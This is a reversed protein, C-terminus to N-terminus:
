RRRKRGLRVIRVLTFVVVLVAAIGLSVQGWVPLEVGVGGVGPFGLLSQDVATM